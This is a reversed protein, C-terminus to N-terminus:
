SSTITKGMPMQNTLTPVSQQFLFIKGTYFLSLLESRFLATYEGGDGCGLTTAMGKESMVVGSAAPTM